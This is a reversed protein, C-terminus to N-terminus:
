HGVYPVLVYSAIPKTVGTLPNVYPVRISVGLQILTHTPDLNNSVTCPKMNPSSAVRYVCTIGPDLSTGRPVLEAMEKALITRAVTLAAPGGDPGAATMEARPATSLYLAADHAAKEAASYQRCYFATVITPLALFALLVPLALAAEVAISGRERRPGTARYPRRM